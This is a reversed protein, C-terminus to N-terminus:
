MMMWECCWITSTMKPALDLNEVCISDNVGEGLFDGWFYLCNPCYSKVVSTGIVSPFEYSRWFRVKEFVFISGLFKQITSTVKPALDVNEVCISDNVGGGLFDGWFYPCKPCHSPVVCRGVRILFDYSRWFELKKFFFDAGFIEAM